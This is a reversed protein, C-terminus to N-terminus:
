AVFLLFCNRSLLHLFPHCQLQLLISLERHTHIVGGGGVRKNIRKGQKIGHGGVGVGVGGWGRQKYLPRHGIYLLCNSNSNSNEREREREREREPPTHVHPFTRTLQLWLHGSM